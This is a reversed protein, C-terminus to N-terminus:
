NVLELIIEKLLMVVMLWLPLFTCGASSYSVLDGNSQISGAPELHTANILLSLVRDSLKSFHMHGAILTSFFPM